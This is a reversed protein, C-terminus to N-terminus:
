CGSPSGSGLLGSPATPSRAQDYGPLSAAARQHLPTDIVGPEVLVVRVGFPALEIRLADSAAELAVKSAAYLGSGPLAFRGLISSVNVIRGHGRHRMPPLFARTVAIAGFLNVQPQARTQPDSVAEVPGLVLIGAANILVDLGHSGTETDIQDRARDIAAADRVDLVVPGIGLHTAAPAQLTEAHRAAAFV